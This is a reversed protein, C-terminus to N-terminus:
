RKGGGVINFSRGDSSKFARSSSKGGLLSSAEASNKPNLAAAFGEGSLITTRMLQAQQLSVAGSKVLAPLSKLAANKSDSAFRYQERDTGARMADAGASTAAANARTTDNAIQQEFSDIEKQVKETEKQTKATEAGYYKTTQQTKAIESPMQGAAVSPNISQIQEPVSIGSLPNGYIDAFSEKPYIKQPEVPQIDQSVGSGITLRGTDPNITPQTNQPIIAPREAPNVGGLMNNEGANKVNALTDRVDGFAEKAHNRIWAERISNNRAEWEAEQAKLQPISQYTMYGNEDVGQFPQILDKIQPPVTNMYDEAQGFVPKTNALFQQNSRNAQNALFQQNRRDASVQAKNLGYGGVGGVLGGLLAGALPSQGTDYAAAGGLAAGLLGLGITKLYPHSAQKRDYPLPQIYTQGFTDPMTQRLNALYNAQRITNENAMPNQGM